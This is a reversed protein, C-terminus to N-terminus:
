LEANCIDCGGCLSAAGEFIRLLTGRTDASKFNQAGHIILRRPALSILASLLLDDFSFDHIDLERVIQAVATETINKGQRDLLMYGGSATVVLHILEAKQPQSAVYRSLLSTVDDFDREARFAEVEKQLAGDMNKKYEELRFNMFGEPSITDSADLFESIQKKIDGSFAEAANKCIKRAITEADAATIDDYASLIKKKLFRMTYKECIIETLKESLTEKFLRMDCDKETYFVATEGRLDCRINRYKPINSAGFAGGTVSIRYM